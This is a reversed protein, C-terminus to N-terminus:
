TIFEEEVCKTIHICLALIGRAVSSSFDIDDIHWHRVRQGAYDRGVLVTTKPIVSALLYTTVLGCSLAYVTTNISQMM